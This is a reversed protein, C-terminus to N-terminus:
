LTAMESKTDTNGSSKPDSIQAALETESKYRSSNGAEESLYGLEKGPQM